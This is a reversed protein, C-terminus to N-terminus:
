SKSCESKYTVFLLGMLSLSVVLLLNLRSVRRSVMLPPLPRRRQQRPRRRLRGWPRPPLLPPSRVRPRPLRPLHSSGSRADGDRARTDSRTRRPTTFRTTWRRRRRPQPLPTRVSPARRAMPFPYPPLWRWRKDSQFLPIVQLFPRSLDLLLSSFLKLRVSCRVLQPMLFVSLCEISGVRAAFCAFFFSNASVSYPYFDPGSQASTEQHRLFEELSLDVPVRSYRYSGTSYKTHRSSSRSSCYILAM